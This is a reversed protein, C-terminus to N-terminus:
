KRFKFADSFTQLKDNGTRVIARRVAAAKRRYLDDLQIVLEHQEASAACYRIAGDPGVDVLGARMLSVVSDSIVQESGRLEAVLNAPTWWRDGSRHLLLLVELAWVSSFSTDIFEALEDTM